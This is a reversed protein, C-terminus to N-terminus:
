FSVHSAQKTSRTAQLHGNLNGKRYHFNKLGDARNFLSLIFSIITEIRKEYQATVLFASSM